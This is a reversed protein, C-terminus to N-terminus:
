ACHHMVCEKGEVKRKWLFIFFLLMMPQIAIWPEWSTNDDTWQRGGVRDGWERTGQLIHQINGVSGGGAGSMWQPLFESYFVQLFAQDRV